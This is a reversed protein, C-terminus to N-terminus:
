FWLRRRRNPFCGDAIFQVILICLLCVLFGAYLLAAVNIAVAVVLPMM